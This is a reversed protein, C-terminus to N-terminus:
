TKVSGDEVAPQSTPPVLKITIVVSLLFALLSLSYLYPIAFGLLTLLTTIVLPVAPAFLGVTFIEGYRWPRKLSRAIIYTVAGTLVLSTLHGVAIAIFIIVFISLAILAIGQPSFFWRVLAILDKKSISGDGLSAVDYNKRENRDESYVEIRERNIVVIEGTPNKVLSEITPTSSSVTDLVFLFPGDPLRQTFPQVIGSVRLTGSTVDVKFDPLGALSNQELSRLMPVLFGTLVVSILISACASFTFFFKWARKRESRVAALWTVDFLSHYLSNLFGM